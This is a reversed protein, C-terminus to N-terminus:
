TGLSLYFESGTLLGADGHYTARCVSILIAARIKRSFTSYYRTTPRIYLVVATFLFFYKRARSFRAILCISIITSIM